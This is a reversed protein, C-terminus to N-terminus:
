KLVEDYTIGRRAADMQARRDMQVAMALSRETPCGLEELAKALDSVTM